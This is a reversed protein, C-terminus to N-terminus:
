FICYSIMNLSLQGIEAINYMTVKLNSIFRSSVEWRSTSVIQEDRSAFKFRTRSPDSEEESVTWAIMINWSFRSVPYALELQCSNRERAQVLRLRSLTFKRAM